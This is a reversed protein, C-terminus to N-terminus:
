LAEAIATAGKVGIKNNIEFTLTQLSTNIKVTNDIATVGDVGTYNEGLHLELLTSNGQCHGKCRCKRDQERVLGSCVWSNIRIFINNRQELFVM